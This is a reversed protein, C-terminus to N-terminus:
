RAAYITASAAAALVGTGSILVTKFKSQPVYVIDEARLHLPLVEGKNVKNYEVPSVLVTGDPLKRVVRIQGVAAALTTGSALALAQAVNLKGGEQMVYGGPRNVAGLVYVIGARKVQVTDGPNVEVNLTNQKDMGRGYPIHENVDLPQGSRHIDIEDGAFETQGGAMALVDTLKRSNLTPFRGPSNVEGLVVINQASYENINVVVHAVKLIEAEKLKDSVASEAERLTLSELHVPGALPLSINGHNDLRYTGDLDTEEFVHLDVMSGPMLRMNSMGEPAVSSASRIDPTSGNHLGQMASQMKQPSPITMQAPLRIPLAIMVFLVLVIPVAHANMAALPAISLPGKAM